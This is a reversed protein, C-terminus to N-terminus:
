KKKNNNVKNNSFFRKANKNSSPTRNEKNKCYLSYKVKKSSENRGIENENNKPIEKLKNENGSTSM